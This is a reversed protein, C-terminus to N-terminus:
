PIPKPTPTPAPQPTPTPVPQPTPTPTPAPQPTPTPTPIPPPPKVVFTVDLQATNPGSKFVVHGTYTGAVLNATSVQVNLNANGNAAITGNTASLALWPQDLTASWSGAGCPNTLTVQQPAPNAGGQEATFSLQGPDVKVCPTPPPKIVFTVDLQVTNPGSKFVAHGTYTGAVLNATSVQVNLNANGNAAITGNTASLALWPQDLTASWSGAGCPNTLTVQQPAPNAGGQEATFSLATPAISICPPKNIILTVTVQKTVVAGKADKFIINVNGTYQGSSMKQSNVSTSIVLQSPPNIQGDGTTSLWSGGANTSASTTITGACDSTVTFSQSPPNNGGADATFNLATPTVNISNNCIPVITFNVTIQAPDTNPGGNFVIHGTYPGAALKGTIAQVNLNVKANASINGSTASLRLWPQDATASWNGAGCPDPNTLTVQQSAPDKGGADATFNLTPPTVTICPPENIILKVTVQQPKTSTGKADTLTVYVYGTYEDPGEDPLDNVRNIDVPAKIELQGPDGLPGAGTTSLWSGSGNTNVSTTITGADGCNKVTFSLPNPNNGGETATYTLATPTITICPLKDITLKVTVQKTVVAGQADKFTANVNGTYQGEPMNASNVSVNIKLQGKADLQGGGTASLWPGGTNTSASTTITGAVNGCNNVMFSQPDPNNGKNATFVLAQPDVDMCPPPTISLTVTVQQTTVGGKANRFIIYVSGTYQGALMKQSNVSVNITLQGKADLQGGGTASLWPGGTNTSASTTITGAGGCNNVTASQAGPNNGTQEATFTLATPTVSICIRETIILTVTVRQTTSAGKTDKLTIDTYGTYQGAPMNQSNASLNVGLWNSADLPGGGTASLWPGGANTNVSTTITGADGCNIVMSGHPDPNRGQETTFTLAPPTVRICPQSTITLTVTVQQTNTDGKADKITVNVSGTYQGLAMNQTNAAINIVIQGSVDLPGGGTTSLWPGGNKTSPSTSITGAGGCNSVTFSRPGPNHGQEATITIADAPVSICPPPPQIGPNDPVTVDLNVVLIVNIQVASEGIALTISGSYTGAAIDAPNVSVTLKQSAGNDLNGNAPSVALWSSGDTTTVSAVWDGKDGCNLLTAGQSPPGAQGATSTFQLTEVDSSVCAHSTKAAVLLTVHLELTGRNGTSFTVTATYTGAKLSAASASIQLRQSQSSSIHGSQDLHLWPSQQTDWSSKWDIDGSGRICLNLPVTVTQDQEEIVPGLSVSASPSEIQGNSCLALTPASQNSKILFQKSALTKGDQGLVYLTHQSGQLWRTDIPVTAKFKGDDGVTVTTYAQGSQAQQTQQMRPPQLVESINGEVATRNSTSPKSNALNQVDFALVVQSHPTFNSGTIPVAQGLDVIDPMSVSPNPQAGGPNSHSFALVVAAIVAAMVVASSISIALYSPQFSKFWKLRRVNKAQRTLHSSHLGHTQRHTGHVVQPQHHQGHRAQPQHHAGYIVQPQHHVGHEVSPQHHAGHLVQPQHHVGHEVSPQHHTGHLVQPQHHVGYEVSPQHHSAHEPSQHPGELPSSLSSPIFEPIGETYLGLDENQVSTHKSDQSDNHKNYKEIADPPAPPILPATPLELLIGDKAFQRQTPIKEQNALLSNSDQQVTPILTNGRLSRGCVGCFNAGERLPAHCYECNKM